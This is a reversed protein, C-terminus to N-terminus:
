EFILSAYGVANKYDKTIDGSTYYSLKRAKTAGLKKTAEITTTIPAIGCITTKKSYKFLEKSDFNKILDLAKGDLRDINDKIAHVFPTFGYNPGYHTFDSSAIICVEKDLQSIADALKTLSLYDNNKIAIPIFKLKELQKYHKTCAM